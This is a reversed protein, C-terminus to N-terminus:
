SQVDEEFDLVVIVMLRDSVRRTEVVKECLERKMMVVIDGVGDKKWVVM